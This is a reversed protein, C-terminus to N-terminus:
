FQKYSAAILNKKLPFHLLMGLGAVSFGVIYYKSGTLFHDMLALLAPVESLALSIVYGFQVLDLRQEEVSRDLMKQKILFSLAVPVLGLTNLALSLKQNPNEEGTTLQVFVLYMLVSMSLAFWLILLTRY